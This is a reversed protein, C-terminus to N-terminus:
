ICPSSLFGQAATRVVISNKVERDGHWEMGSARRARVSVSEARMAIFRIGSCDTRRKGWAIEEPITIIGIGSSDKVVSAGEQRRCRLVGIVLYDSEDKEPKENRSTM